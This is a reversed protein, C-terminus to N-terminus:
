HHHKGNQILAVHCARHMDYLLQPSNTLLRLQASAASCSLQRADSLCQTKWALKSDHTNDSSVSNLDYPVISCPLVSGSTFRLVMPPPKMSTKLSKAMVRLLWCPTLGLNRTWTGKWGIDADIM